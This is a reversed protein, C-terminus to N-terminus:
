RILCRQWIIYKAATIFIIMQQRQKEQRQGERQIQFSVKPWMEERRASETFLEPCAEM